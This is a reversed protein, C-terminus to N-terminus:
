FCRASGALVHRRSRQLVTEPDKEHSVRSALIILFANVPLDLRRRIAVREQVGAPRFTEVDVGNTTALSPPLATVVRSTKCIPVSPWAVPRLRGNVTMLTRIVVEGAWAVLPGIQGRERRCRFYEVPPLAMTTVVPVGRLTGVVTANLSGRLM